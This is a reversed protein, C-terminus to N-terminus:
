GSFGHNLELEIIRIHPYEKKLFERSDDESGNDAVVIEAHPHTTHRVLAPLFDELHQRGNWNLIVISVEKM